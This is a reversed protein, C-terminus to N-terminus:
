AESALVSALTRNVANRIAMLALGLGAGGILLPYFRSTFYLDLAVYGIFIWSTCWVACGVSSLVVFKPISVGFAGAPLSVISRVVPACRLLLLLLVTHREFALRGVKEILAIDDRFHRFFPIKRATSIIRSVRGAGLFRGITYLLSAGVVNGAIATAVTALLPQGDVLVIYGAALLIIESPPFSALGNFLMLFFLLSLGYAILHSSWDSFDM